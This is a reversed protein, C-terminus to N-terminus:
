RVLEFRTGTWLRLMPSLKAKHAMAYDNLAHQKNDYTFTWSLGRLDRGRGDVCQRAVALVYPRAPNVRGSYDQEGRFCIKAMTSDGSARWAGDVM